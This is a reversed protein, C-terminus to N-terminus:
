PLLPEWDHGPVAEGTEWGLGGDRGPELAAAASKLSPNHPAAAPLDVATVGPSESPPPRSLPPPSPRPVHRLTAAAIAHDSPFASSLVAGEAFAGRRM